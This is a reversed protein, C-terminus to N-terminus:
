LAYRQSLQNIQHKRKDQQLNHAKTLIKERHTQLEPM